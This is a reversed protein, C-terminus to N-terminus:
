KSRVLSVNARRTENLKTLKLGGQLHDADIQKLDYEFKWDGTTLEFRVNVEEVRGTELPYQEEANPGGSGTLTTGQQKLTFLQPIDHDGGEVKFSGSWKGTMDGAFATATLLVIAIMTKM